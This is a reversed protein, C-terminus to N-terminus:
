TSALKLWLFTQVQAQGWKSDTYDLPLSYSIGNAFEPLVRMKSANSLPWKQSNAGWFGPLFLSKPIFYPFIASKPLYIHESNIKIEELISITNMSVVM